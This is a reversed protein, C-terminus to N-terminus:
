DIQRQKNKPLSTKLERLTKLVAADIISQGVNPNMTDPHAIQGKLLNRGYAQMLAVTPAVPLIPILGSLIVATNTSRHHVSQGFLKQKPYKSLEIMLGLATDILADTTLGVVFSAVVSTLATPIAALLGATLSGIWESGSLALEITSFVATSIIGLNPDRGTAAQYQLAEEAISISADALNLKHGTVGSAIESAANLLPTALGLLRGLSNPTLNQETIARINRLIQDEVNPPVAVGHQRLLREISGVKQKIYNNYFREQPSTPKTTLSREEALQSATPNEPHSQSPTERLQQRLHEIETAWRNRRIEQPRKVIKETNPIGTAVELYSTPIGLKNAREAVFRLESKTLPGSSERRTTATLKALREGTLRNRRRDEPQGFGKERAKANPRVILYEANNAGM